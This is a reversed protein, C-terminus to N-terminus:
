SSPVRDRIWVPGLSETQCTKKNKAPPKLFTLAFTTYPLFSVAFTDHLALLIGALANPFLRSLPRIRM